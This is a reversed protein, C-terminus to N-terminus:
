SPQHKYTYTMRNQSPQSKSWSKHRGQFDHGLRQSQLCCELRHHMAELGLPASTPSTFTMPLTHIVGTAIQKRCLPSNWKQCGAEKVHSLVTMSLWIVQDNVESQPKRCSLNTELRLPQTLHHWLWKCPHTTVEAVSLKRFFQTSYHSRKKYKITASPKRWLTHIYAKGRRTAGSRAAFWSTAEAPAVSTKPRTQRLM